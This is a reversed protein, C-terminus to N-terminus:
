QAALEIHGRSHGSSLDKDPVFTVKINGLVDNEVMIANGILKDFYGNINDDSLSPDMVKAVDHFVNKMGATGSNANDNTENITVVIKGTNNADLLELYYGFSYAYYKTKINGNSIDTLVSATTANYDIIFQNVIQDDAYNEKEPSPSGSPVGESTASNSTTSSSGNASTSKQSSDEAGCGTVGWIIGITLLFGMVTAIAKNTHNCRM